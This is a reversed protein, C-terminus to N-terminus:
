NPYFDNYDRQKNLEELFQALGYAVRDQETIKLIGQHDDAVIKKLIETDMKKDGTKHNQYFM